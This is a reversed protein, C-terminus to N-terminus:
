KWARVVRASHAARPDLRRLCSRRYSTHHLRSKPPRYFCPRSSNHIERQPYVPQLHRFFVSAWPQHAPPHSLPHSSSPRPCVTRETDKHPQTHSPSSSPKAIPAPAPSTLLPPSPSCPKNPYLLHHDAAVPAQKIHELDYSPLTKHQHQTPTPITTRFLSTPTPNSTPRAFIM